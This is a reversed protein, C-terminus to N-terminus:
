ERLYPADGDKRPRVAPKNNILQNIEAIPTGKDQQKATVPKKKKAPAKVVREEKVVPEPQKVEEEFLEYDKDNFDVKNIIMYGDKHKVKITEIESRRM